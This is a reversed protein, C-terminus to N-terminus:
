FHRFGEPELKETKRDRTIQVVGRKDTITGIEHFGLDLAITAKDTPVTLLLEFDEGGHLAFSLGDIGLAGAIAPDVPIQELDITAGVASAESIHALDSSLGDSIDIMATPLNYEQLLKATVVHPIPQLQRLVLHSAPAPLSGVPKGHTELWKLGAAAGGLFGTVFIRDGPRATSRLISGNKPVEGIVISDIVLKDTSRSVDGGVLEVGHTLALGHWGAYFHDLFDTKWLKEAIAISLLAATPTGGMAAVDSLSVALAKHGLFEPMTWDLRFDIEEVLMDATILLDTKKDKPLIACDDGVSRLAFRSKLHNIFEFESRM